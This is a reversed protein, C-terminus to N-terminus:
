KVEEISVIIGTHKFIYDAYSKASKLTPFYVRGDVIYEKM